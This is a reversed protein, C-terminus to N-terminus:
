SEAGESQRGACVGGDFVRVPERAIVVDKHDELLVLVGIHDKVGGIRGINRAQRGLIADGGVEIALNVRRLGVIDRQQASVREANM